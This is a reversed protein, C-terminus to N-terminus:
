KRVTLVTTSKVKSAKGATGKGSVRVRVSLRKKRKIMRLAAKSAKVKITKREGAKLSFSKRGIKLVKRSKGVRVRMASELRLTGKAAVACFVKVPIASGALSVKSHSATCRTGFASVQVNECDGAVRDDPDATVVDSGGGCRVDGKKHDATDITDGGSGTTVNEVDDNIFDNESREGNKDVGDLNVTVGATRSAYLVRDSGPGGGNRDSGPGGDLSDDGGEGKLDDNGAGGALSDNGESGFLADNGVDGALSDNGFSGNLLDDGEAGALRDNGPGGDLVNDRSDGLITDDASGGSVKEVDANINDNEGAEGDGGATALDVFVPAARGAYSALDMGNGGVLEDAGGAGDLADDGDGGVLTNPASTGVLSDNGIGGIVTEFDASVNDGEGSTGDNGAGDPTVSVGTTADSYDLTDSDAGGSLPDADPGGHVTDDGADGNVTDIGAEGDLTDDGPGGSMADDGLGGVITDIGSQGELRDNGGGGDIFDNGDSGELRNRDGDGRLIDDNLGGIVNEVDGGISDSLKSRPDYDGLRLDATVTGDNPAGDIAASVPETRTAYTVTDNGDGGNLADPGFRGDIVDDGGRGDIDNVGHPEVRPGLGEYQDPSNGVLVDNHDSGIINEIDEGVCDQEANPDVSPDGPIGDNPTCDRTGTTAIGRADVPRCDRRAKRYELINENSTFPLTHRVDTPLVGDISVHVGEPSNSYDVTDVGLGGCLTDNGRLGIFRDTLNGGIMEDDFNTGVATEFFDAWIDTCGDTAPCNTTDTDHAFPTNAADTFIPGGRDAYTITDYGAGGGATQFREFFPDDVSPGTSITDNGDRGFIIDIGEGGSITDDGPSGNLDDDGPGGAIAAGKPPNADVTVSDNRDGAEVRITDINAKACRAGAASVNCGGGPNGISAIPGADTSGSETFVYDTGDETVSLLNQEGADATYTIQRQGANVQISAASASCAFALLAVLAIIPTLAVRPARAMGWGVTENVSGLYAREEADRGLVGRRRFIGSQLPKMDVRVVAELIGDLGVIYASARFRAVQERTPQPRAAVPAPGPRRDNRVARYPGKSPPRFPLERVGSNSRAICPMQPARIVAQICSFLVM